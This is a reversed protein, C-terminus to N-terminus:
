VSPDFLALEEADPPEFRPIWSEIQGPTAAVTGPEAAATRAALRRHVEELPVDLYRLEVAVGLRRAGLRKEDRDSRLWFGSELIVNQGLRLLRQGLKWFV